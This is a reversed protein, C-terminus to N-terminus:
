GCCLCSTEGPQRPSRQFLQFPPLQKVPQKLTDWHFGKQCGSQSGCKTQMTSQVKSEPPASFGAHSLHTSTSCLRLPFHCGEHPVAEAVDQTVSLLSHAPCQLLVWWASPASSRTSSRPLSLPPQFLCSPPLYIPLYFLVPHASSFRSGSFQSLQSQLLLPRMSTVRLASKLRALPFFLSSDSQNSLGEACM